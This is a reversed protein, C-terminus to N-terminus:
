SSRGRSRASGTVEAHGQLAHARPSPVSGTIGTHENRSGVRYWVSFSVVPASRVEKVLVTLGNPLVTEQVGATLSAAPPPRPGAAAALAGAALARWALPSWPSSGRSRCRVPLRPRPASARRLIPGRAAWGSGRSGPRRVSPGRFAHYRPGAAAGGPRCTKRSGLGRPDSAWSYGRLLRSRRRRKSERGVLDRDAVRRELRLQHREPLRDGAQVPIGLRDDHHGDMVSSRQVHRRRHELGHLLAEQEHEEQEALGVRAHDVHRGPRDQRVHDVVIEPEQRADDRRVGAARKKLGTGCSLVSRGSERLTRSRGRSREWIRSRMGSLSRACRTGYLVVSSSRSRAIRSPMGM